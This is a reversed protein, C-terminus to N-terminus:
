LHVGLKMSRQQQLAMETQLQTTFQGEMLLVKCKRRKLYRVITDLEAARCSTPDIVVTTKRQLKWEPKRLKDMLKATHHPSRLRHQRVRLYIEMFQKPQTRKIFDAVSVFDGDIGPPKTSAYRSILVIRHKKHEAFYRLAINVAQERGKPVFTLRNGDKFADLVKRNSFDLDRQLHALAIEGIKLRSSKQRTLTAANSISNRLLQGNRLLVFYDFAGHKWQELGYKKPDLKIRELARKISAETVREDRLSETCASAILSNHGILNAQNSEWRIARKIYRLALRNENASQILRVTRTPLDKLQWGKQQGRVRWKALQEGVNWQQKAARTIRNFREILKQKGIGVRQKFQHLRSDVGQKRAYLWEKSIGRIGISNDPKRYVDFHLQSILRNALGKTMVAQYYAQLKYARRVSLAAFKRTQSNRGVNFVFGHFHLLQKGDRTLRELKSVMILEANQGNRLKAGDQELMSAARRAETLFLQEVQKRKTECDAAAYLAQISPDAVVTILWGETRLKSGANRTLPLGNYYGKSLQVLVDETPVSNMHWHKALSGDLYLELPDVSDENTLIYDLGGTKRKQLRFIM